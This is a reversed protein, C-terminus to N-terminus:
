ATGSYEDYRARYGFLRAIPSLLAIGIRQAAPPPSALFVGYERALLVGQLMKPAGSKTLKGDRGLGFITEMGADTNMAPRIEVVLHAAGDGSNWLTHPIGAPLVAAEGEALDTEADALRYRVNGSVVQFREEQKTHIHAVPVPKNPEFYLDFELLEGNTGSATQRFVVREGTVPNEIVGGPLAM